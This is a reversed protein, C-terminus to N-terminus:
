FEYGIINDAYRKWGEATKYADVSKTPVYIMCKSYNFDHGL